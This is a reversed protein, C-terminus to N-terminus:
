ECMDGVSAEYVCPQPKWKKEEGWAMQGELGKSYRFMLGRGCEARLLLISSFADPPWLILTEAEAHLLSSEWSQLFCDQASEIHSCRLTKRHSPILIGPSPRCQTGRVLPAVAWSTLGLPVSASVSEPEAWSGWQDDSRGSHIGERAQQCTLCPGPCIGHQSQSHCSFSSAYSPEGLGLLGCRYYYLFLSPQHASPLSM